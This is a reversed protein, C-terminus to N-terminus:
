TVITFSFYFITLNRVPTLQVPPPPVPTPIMMQPSLGIASGMTRMFGLAQDLSQRLQDHEAQWRGGTGGATSQLRSGDLGAINSELTLICFLVYM